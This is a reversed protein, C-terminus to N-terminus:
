KWKKDIKKSVIGDLIDKEMMGYEAQELKQQVKLGKMMDNYQFLCTEIYNKLLLCLTFCLCWMVEYQILKVEWELLM